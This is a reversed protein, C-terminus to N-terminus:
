PSALAAARSFISATFFDNPTYNSNEKYRIIYLAAMRDSEIKQISEPLFSLTNDYDTGLFFHIRM